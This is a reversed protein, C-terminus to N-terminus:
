IEKDNTSVNRDSFFISFAQIGLCPDIDVRSVPQNLEYFGYCVLCELRPDYGVDAAKGPEEREVQPIDLIGDQDGGRVTHAGFQLDREHHVFV